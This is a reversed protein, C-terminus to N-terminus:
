DFKKFVHKLIIRIESWSYFFAQLWFDEIIYSHVFNLINLGWMNFKVNKIGKSEIILSTDALSM